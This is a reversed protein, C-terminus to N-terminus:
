KSESEQLSRINEPIDQKSEKSECCSSGETHENKRHMMLMMAGMGIPCIWFLLTELSASSIGLAGIVMFGVIPLGCCIAMMWMHNFGKKKKKGNEKVDDTQTKMTKDM